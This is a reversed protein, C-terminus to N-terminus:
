VLTKAVYTKLFSETIDNEFPRALNLHMNSNYM